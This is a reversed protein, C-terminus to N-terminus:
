FRQVALRCIESLLTYFGSFWTRFHCKWTPLQFLWEKTKSNSNYPDRLQVPLFDFWLLLGSPVVLYRSAFSKFMVPFERLREIVLLIQGPKSGSYISVGNYSQSQLNIVDTAVSVSVSAVTGDTRLPPPALSLKTHKKWGTM